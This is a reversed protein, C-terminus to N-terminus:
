SKSRKKSKKPRLKQPSKSSTKRRKPQCQTCFFTSRGTLRIAAVPTECHLCPEGEKDYVALQMRFEGSTGDTHRYDRFTTGGARIAQALTDQIAKALRQCDEQSLSDAPCLPHLGARFLAESAYINGVGVVITANMVFVKVPVKRGRSKEYLHAWLDKKGLPEPGLSSFFRYTALTERPCLDIIGFRRPDVYHLYTPRVGAIEFVAHTHPRKPIPSTEQFINGSMGLHFVAFGKKTEWLMFKSRRTVAQIMEGELAEQLAQVPIPYRLDERLFTAKTVLRTEVTKKLARVLCEVEPLEPM